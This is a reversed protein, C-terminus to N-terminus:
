ALAALAAAAQYISRTQREIRRAVRWNLQSRAKENSGRRYNEGTVENLEQLFIKFNQIANDILTLPVHFGFFSSVLFLQRANYPISDRYCILQIREPERGHTEIAETLHASWSDIQWIERYTQRCYIDQSARLNLQNVLDTLLLQIWRSGSRPYGVLFQDSPTITACFEPSMPMFEATETQAMIM